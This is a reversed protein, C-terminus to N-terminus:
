NEPEAVCRACLGAARVSSLLFIDVSGLSNYIHLSFSDNDNDGYTSSMYFALSGKGLYLDGNTNRTGIIPLFIKENDSNTAIAGGYATGNSSMDRIQWYNNANVNDLIPVQNTFDDSGNGNSIDWWNWKSPIRWGSPCPNNEPYKWVFGLSGQDNRSNGTAIGWLGDDHDGDYYWDNDGYSAGAGASTIFKGYHDDSNAVQHNADYAPISGGNNYDIVASTNDPTTGFPLIQNKHSADKSWVINQHGDAVRGWQYFDGLDAANNNSVYGGGISWGASQGLNLLAVKMEGGQVIGNYGRKLTLYRVGNETGYGSTNTGIFLIDM